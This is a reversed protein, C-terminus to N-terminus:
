NISVMKNQNDPSASKKDTLSSKTPYTHQLLWRNLLLSMLLMVAVNLGVPILVYQYGMSAVIEGAMVPALAAAAGPPHLCRLLFMALVSISVAFATAYIKGPLLQTCAIGWSTSILHSGVFSWPQALPSNPIIFVIVASTCM